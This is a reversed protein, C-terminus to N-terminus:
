QHGDPVQELVGPDARTLPTYQVVLPVLQDLAASAPGQSADRLRLVKIM